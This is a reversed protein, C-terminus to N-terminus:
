TFGKFTQEDFLMVVTNKEGILLAVSNPSNGHKENFTFGLEKFFARSKEINKVPLNIWFDKAMQQNKIQSLFLYFFGSCKFFMRSRKSHSTSAM